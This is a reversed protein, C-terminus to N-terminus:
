GTQMRAEPQPHAVERWYAFIIQAQQRETAPAGGGSPASAVPANRCSRPIKRTSIKAEIKRNSNSVM